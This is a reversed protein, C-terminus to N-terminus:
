LGLFRAGAVVALGAAVSGLLSKTKRAAALTVLAAVIFLGGAAPSEGPRPALDPTLLAALVAPPVYGLWRSAVPNLPRKSLVWSPLFRPLFTVLAMGLIILFITEQDM